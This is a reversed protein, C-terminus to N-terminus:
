HTRFTNWEHTGLDIAAYAEFVYLELPNQIEIFAVQLSRLYVQAKSFERQFLPQGMADLRKGPTPLRRQAIAYVLNADLHTKGCFHQRLRALVARSIGVYIPKGKEILVYCGSFDGALKLKNAIAVPGKGTSSFVLAHHPTGLATRLQVM